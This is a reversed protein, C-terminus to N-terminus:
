RGGKMMNILQTIPIQQQQKQQNVNNLGALMSMVDPLQPSELGANIYQLGIKKDSPAIMQSGKNGMVEGLRNGVPLQGQGAAQYGQGSIPSPGAAAGSAAGGGGGMMGGLLNKFLGGIIGLM